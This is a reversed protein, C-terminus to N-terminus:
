APWPFTLAPFILTWIIARKFCPTVSPWARESASTMAPRSLLRISWSIPAVPQHNFVKGFHEARQVSSAFHGVRSTSSLPRPPLRARSRTRLRQSNSIARADLAMPFRPARPAPSSARVFSEAVELRSCAATRKHPTTAIITVRHHSSIMVFAADPITGACIELNIRTHERDTQSNRKEARESKSHNPTAPLVRSDLHSNSCAAGFM